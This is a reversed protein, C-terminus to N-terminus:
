KSNVEPFLLDAIGGGVESAVLEAEYNPFAFESFPRGELWREHVDKHLCVPMRKKNNHIVSMLENADTTVISYTRLQKGTEPNTWLSYIGALSFIQHDKIGIEFKKKEKGKPDLWQWEYFSHAPILCRNKASNKYSALQEITEIKANLTNAKKLFDPKGWSPILGWKGVVIETPATDLIVATEPYNFGNLEDLLHFEHELEHASYYEEAQKITFNTNFRYCM